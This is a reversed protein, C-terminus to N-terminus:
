FEQIRVRKSDALDLVYNKDIKKFNQQSCNTNQVMNHFSINKFRTLDIRFKFTLRVDDTM